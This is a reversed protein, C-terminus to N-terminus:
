TYSVAYDNSVVRPTEYCLIDERSTPTTLQVHADEPRLPTKAFKENIKPLYVERLYRHADEITSIQAMRLEKM